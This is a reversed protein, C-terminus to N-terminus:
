MPIHPWQSAAPGATIELVTDRIAEVGKTGFARAVKLAAHIRGRSETLLYDKRRDYEPLSVRRNHFLVILPLPRTSGPVTKGTIAAALMIGLKRAASEIRALAEERDDKVGPVPGEPM